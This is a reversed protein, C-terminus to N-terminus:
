RGFGPDAGAEVLLAVADPFWAADGPGTPEVFVAAATTLLV